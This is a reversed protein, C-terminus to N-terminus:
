LWRWQPDIMIASSGTQTVAVEGKPIRWFNGTVSKTWIAGNRTVIQADCDVEVPYGSIGPLDDFVMTQGAITIENHGSGLIRVIPRSAVDGPNYLTESSTSFTVREDREPFRGKRFPQFLIPITGIFLKDKDERDFSVEDVIQAIYAKEQDDSLILEGSGRLWEKVRDLNITNKCSVTMESSYASYVDEGEKLTLSGARGPIVIEEYREKPRTRKPLKRVWLGFDSISNKGKWIFWHSNM